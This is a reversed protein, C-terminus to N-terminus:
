KFYSETACRVKQFHNGLYWFLRGVTDLMVLHTEGQECM